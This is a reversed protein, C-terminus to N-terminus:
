RCERPFFDQPMGIVIKPNRYLIRKDRNCDHLIAVPGTASQHQLLEDCKNWARSKTAGTASASDATDGRRREQLLKQLPGGACVSNWIRATQLLSRKIGVMRCMLLNASLACTLTLARRGTARPINEAASEMITSRCSRALTEFCTTLILWPM